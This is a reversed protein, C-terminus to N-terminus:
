QMVLRESAALQGNAYFLQIFYIGAAWNGIQLSLLQSKEANNMKQIFVTNGNVTLVKIYAITTENNQIKISVTNNKQAPNPFLIFKQTQLLGKQKAAVDQIKKDLRFGGCGLVERRCRFGYSNVFVETCSKIERALSITIPLNNLGIKIPITYSTYGVSSVSLVSDYRVNKDLMIFCSDNAVLYTIQHNAKNKIMVAAGPLPSNNEKDKIYVKWYPSKKTTIIIAGSAGNTGYLVASTPPKLIDITAIEQPSITKFVSSDIFIGDIIFLPQQNITTRMGCRLTIKVPSTCTTAVGSSVAKPIPQCNTLTDKAIIGETAKKNFRLAVLSDITIPRQPMLGMCGGRGVLIKSIDSSTNTQAIVSMVDLLLVFLFSLTFKQNM